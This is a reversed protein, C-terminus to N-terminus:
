IYSTILIQGPKRRYGFDELDIREAINFPSTRGFTLKALNIAGSIIFSYVSFGEVDSRQSFIARITKLFELALDRDPMGDIEDIFIVYKFKRKKDFFFLDRQKSFEAHSLDDLFDEFELNNQVKKPANLLSPPDITYKASLCKIIKGAISSYFERKDVKALDELTMYISEHTHIEDENIKNILQRMFTTKGTQRPGVIAFYNLDQIGNLVHQVQKGRDIYTVKDKKPDIHGFFKFPNKTVM